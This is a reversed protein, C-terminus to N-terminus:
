NGVKIIKNTKLQARSNLDFYGGFFAENFKIWTFLPNYKIPLESHEDPCGEVKITFDIHVM